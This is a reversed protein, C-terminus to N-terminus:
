GRPQDGMARFQREEEAWAAYEEPEGDGLASYGRGGRLRDILASVDAATKGRLWSEVSGSRERMSAGLEKFRANMFRDGYGAKRLLAKAYDVQKQTAPGKGARPGSYTPPPPPPPPTAPTPATTQSVPKARQGPTYREGRQMVQGRAFKEKEHAKAEESGHYAAHEAETAPVGRWTSWWGMRGTPGGYDDAADSSTYTPVADTHTVRYYKDGQKRVEGVVPMNHGHLAYGHNRSGKGWDAVFEEEPPRSAPPSAVAPPAPPPSPPAVPPPVQSPEVKAPSLRHVGGGPEVMRWGPRTVRVPSGTPVAAGAEHYLPDFPAVGGQEGVPEAGAARLARELPATHSPDANGLKHAEHWASVLRGAVDRNRHTAARPEAATDPPPLPVAGPEDPAYGANAMGAALTRAALSSPDLQQYERMAADLAPHGTAVPRAAAPRPRASPDTRLVFHATSGLHELKSQRVDEPDMAQVQDARELDLRRDRRAANLQADFQGRTLGPHRRRMEDFVHRIFVKNDGFGHSPPAADAISQVEQAFSPPTPATPSAAGRPKVALWKRGVKIVAGGGVKGAAEAAARRTPYDHQDIAEYDSSSAADIVRV